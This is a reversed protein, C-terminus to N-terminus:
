GQGSEGFRALIWDRITSLVAPAMTEEIAGYEEIGGSTATQFLHNLGPLERVTVDANGGAELAARIPPLNQEPDVQLDLEGNLALVPVSTKRLAQRPDHQIFFRMWPTTMQEYGAGRGPDDPQVSADIGLQADTLRAFQERVKEGEGGARVLKLLKRQEDLVKDLKEEAMGAARSILALQHTLIEEGPVGPGALMVVFAVSDSRSAALPAVAGGESHGILGIRRADIEARAGILRIAQLADDAFDASTSQAVSGGSGGVGRDDARLVAIGGRALFDALVLFPKHGLLQEDRDQAGSGSILVVAPFPGEGEPITLTAALRVDGNAYSVEEESYPFPPQPEQPRRPPELRERSLRLPLTAGGQTLEGVLAGDRLRGHFTPDGPVDAYSFRISDGEVEIEALPMAYAGQQPSDSTGTWGDDEHLLDFAVPLKAGGGLEMQGEWHGGFSSASDEGSGADAPRERHPVYFFGAVRREGDLVVRFDVTTKEFRAPLRYRSNGQIVDELWAHGLGKLAGYQGALQARVQASTEATMLSRMTEDLWVAAAEDDPAMFSEAFARAIEEGTPPTAAQEEAWSSGLMGLALLVWCARWM